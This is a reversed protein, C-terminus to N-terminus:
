AVDYDPKINIARTYDSVAQDNQGMRRYVLGRNAYTQYSQPNLQLARNFDEVAKDLKGAQGYAIGRTSYASADNPNADIVATLSAINTSSGASANTPVDDYVGTTCASLVAALGLLTAHPLFKRMRCMRDRLTLRNSM